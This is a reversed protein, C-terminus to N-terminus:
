SILEQSKAWAKTGNLGYEGEECGDSWIDWERDEDLGRSKRGERIQKTLLGEYIGYSWESIEECIEKDLSIGNGGIETLLDVTRQARKRPSVYVKALKAPDILKGAGFVMRGTATTQQVGRDTLPIESLGTYQGSLTWETEGTM